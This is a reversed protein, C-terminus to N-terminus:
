IDGESEENVAEKYKEGLEREYERLSYMKTDVRTRCGEENIQCEYLRKLLAITENQMRILQTNATYIEQWQCILRQLEENNLCTLVEYNM